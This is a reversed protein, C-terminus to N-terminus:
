LCECISDFKKVPVCVQYVVHDYEHDGEIDDVDDNDDDDDYFYHNYYHYYYEIVLWCNAKDQKEILSFAQAEDDQKNQQIVNSHTICVFTKNNVWEDIRIYSM